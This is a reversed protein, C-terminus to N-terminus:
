WVVESYCRKQLGCSLIKKLFLAFVVTGINNRQGGGVGWIFEKTIAM